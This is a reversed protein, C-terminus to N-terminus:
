LTLCLMYVSVKSDERYPENDLDSVATVAEYYWLPHHSCCIQSVVSALSRASESVADRIRLARYLNSEGRQRAHGLVAHHELRFQM